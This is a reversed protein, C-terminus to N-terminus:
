LHYEVIEVKGDSDTQVIADTIAPLCETMWDLGGIGSGIRPIAIRKIGISKAHELMNCFSLFIGWSTADPGPAIQTALNYICLDIEEDTVFQAYGLHFVRADCVAKYRKYAQESKSRVIKAVGAGMVGVTNCGHAIVREGSNFLDGQVSLIQPM